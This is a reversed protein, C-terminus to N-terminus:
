LLRICVLGGSVYIKPDKIAALFAQKHTMETGDEALEETQQLRILALQKEEPSLWKTTSPYDPLVFYAVLSVLVTATGEIIFLRTTMDAAHARLWVIEALSVM